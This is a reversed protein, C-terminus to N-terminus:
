LGPYVGVVAVQIGFESLKTEVEKSVAELKQHSAAYSKSDSELNEDLLDLPPLVNATAVDGNTNSPRKRRIPLASLQKDAGLPSGAANKSDAFGLKAASGPKIAAVAAAVATVASASVASLGASM